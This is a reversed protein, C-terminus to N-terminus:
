LGRAKSHKSICESQIHVFSSIQHRLLPLTPGWRHGGRHVCHNQLCRPWAEAGSCNPTHPAKPHLQIAYLLNPSTLCSCNFHGSSLYPLNLNSVFLFKKGGSPPSASSCTAWPPQPHGMGAPMWPWAPHPEPCGPRSTPSGACLLPPQFMTTKKLGPWEIIRHPMKPCNKPISHDSSSKQHAPSVDPTQKCSQVSSIPFGKSRSSPNWHLM